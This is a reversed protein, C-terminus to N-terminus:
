AHSPEQHLSTAHANPVLLERLARLARDYRSSVTSRPLSLAAALQDFSLGAVHRLVVVERWHRPLADVASQVGAHSLPSVHPTRDAHRRRALERRATRLHMLAAHRALRLLWARVDLVAALTSESSDLVACFASQVVDDAAESAARPGLVTRAYARLVGAHRSWLAAAATADGRHTGLLLQRDDSAM